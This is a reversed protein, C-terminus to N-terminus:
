MGKPTLFRWMAEKEITKTAALNREEEFPNRSNFTQCSLRNVYFVFLWCVFLVTLIM